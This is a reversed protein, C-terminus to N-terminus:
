FNQVFVKKSNKVLSMKLFIQNLSVHVFERNIANKHLQGFGAHIVSKVVKLFKVRQELATQAVEALLVIKVLNHVRLHHAALALVIRHPVDVQHDEQLHVRLHVVV